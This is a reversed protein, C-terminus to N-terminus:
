SRPLTTFDHLSRSFYGVDLFWAGHFIWTGLGWGHSRTDSRLTLAQLKTNRQHKSTSAQSKTAGCDYSRGLVGISWGKTVMTKRM